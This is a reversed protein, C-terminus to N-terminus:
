GKVASLILKLFDFANQSYEFKILKEGIKRINKNNYFWVPKPWVIFPAEVISKEPFDLLYGNHVIGIGSQIDELTHGPYAGWTTSAFAYSLASWCNIGISGYRLSDICNEIENEYISRSEPDVILSCSLSGWVKENCFDTAFQIFTPIDHASLATESIIGCFAEERFAYSDDTEKIDAILTWPICNKKKEGLIESQPYKKLYENYRQEAGPYYAIRPKLKSLEKRLCNLFLARQQWEKCTVILKIANCNFSANNEVASAIQQAHYELQEDSWVGPVIVVPTVCGLESTINKFNRKSISYDLNESLPGFENGWIIKNHTRHSGTIHIDEILDHECLWQSIEVDGKIFYLFNDNILDEFVKNFIEFLYDNVPNLKVICVKGESFLKHLADLPAISSVNGAGLVLSLGGLNKQTKYISGQTPEKSKQIRVEAKFGKWIITDYFNAPVVQAIYQNSKSKYIKPIRPSGKAILAKKLLRMQKMVIAPGLLLEQGSIESNFELGKARVCIDAWQKSEALLKKMAETLYNIKKQLGLEVWHNKNEHLNRLLNEIKKREDM